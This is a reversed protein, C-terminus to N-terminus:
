LDDIKICMANERDTIFIQGTSPSIAVGNHEPYGLSSPSKTIDSRLVTKKALDIAIFKEDKYFAMDQYFSINPKDSESNESFYNHKLSGNNPDLVTLKESTKICLQENHIGFGAHQLSADDSYNWEEQQTLLNYSVLSSRSKIYILHDKYVAVQEGVAYGPSSVTSDIFAISQTAINYGSLEAKSASPHKSKYLDRLTILISDGSPNIWSALRGSIMPDFGQKPEFVLVQEWGPNSSNYNLRSIFGRQVGGIQTTHNVYLHNGFLIMGEDIGFQYNPAPIKWITTGDNMNIAYVAHDNNILLMEPRSAPILREKIEYSGPYIFDNWRWMVKGTQKDYGQVLPATSCALIAVFKDKYSAPQIGGCNNYEKLHLTSWQFPLKSTDAPEKGPSPQTIPDMTTKECGFVLLAVFLLLLIKPMTFFYLNM